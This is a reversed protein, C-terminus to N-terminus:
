APAGIQPFAARIGVLAQAALEFDNKVATRIFDELLAVALEAQREDRAGRTGLLGLVRQKMARDPWLDFLAARFFLELRALPVFGEKLHQEVLDLAFRRVNKAPHQALRFLLEQPDLKSLNKLVLEKGFNQVDDHGSDCLGIIADLGLRGVDAERLMKVAGQRVDPWRSEALAFLVQPQDRLQAVASNLLAIAAARVAAVDSEALPLVRDLTLAEFTGPRQALLAGAIAKATLSGQSIWGMLEELPVKAILEKALSETAIRAWRDHDGQTTEPVKLRQLVIDALAERVPQPAGKLALVAMESAMARTEASKSELFAVIRQPDRTWLHATLKLWRLGLERAIPRDDALLKELLAWDPKNPDFRRSLHAVGLELTGEFPAELMLRLDELTAQDLVSPHRSVGSHAFRHVETLQARTLLVLFAKPHADWLEAFPEERTGPQPETAKVSTYRWKLSRDVLKLRQSRGWLVRNLLYADAWTGFFGHGPRADNPLYRAVAHAAAFPYDDPRWRGVKRLYRWTLRRMFLKTKRGFVVTKKEKGDYGSKVTAVTAKRTLAAREILHALWGFTAHDHRLQARKFISKTYRWLHPEHFHVQELVDRMAAIANATGLEYLTDLVLGREKVPLALVQQTIAKPEQEPLLGKPLRELALKRATALGEADNLKRLAEVASRRRSLLKREVYPRLSLTAKADGIEGLADIVSCTDDGANPLLATLAVVADKSRMWGLRQAARARLKSSKEQLQALLLKGDGKSFGESILQQLVEDFRQDLESEPFPGYVSGAKLQGAKAGRAVRVMWMGSVTGPAVSVVAIRDTGSARFLRVLQIM